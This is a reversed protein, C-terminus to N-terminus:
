VLGEARSHAFVIIESKLERLDIIKASAKGARLLERARIRLEKDDSVFSVSRPQMGIAVLLQLIVPDAYAERKREISIPSIQLLGKKQLNEIRKIALRTRKAKRKDKANPSKFKINCIEDFQPGLLVVPKGSNELLAELVLFFSSYGENMWINSDIILNESMLADFLKTRAAEAIKRKKKPDSFLDSLWAYLLMVTIDLM